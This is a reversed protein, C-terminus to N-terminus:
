LNNWNWEKLAKRWLLTEQLCRVFTIDQNQGACPQKATALLPWLWSWTIQHWRVPDNSPSTSPLTKPSFPSRGTWYAHCRNQVLTTTSHHWNWPLPLLQSMGTRPQLSNDPHTVATADLETTFVNARSDSAKKYM